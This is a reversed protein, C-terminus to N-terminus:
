GQLSNIIDTVYWIEEEQGIFSSLVEFTWMVGMGVFIKLYQLFRERMNQKSHGTVNETKIEKRYLTWIILVCGSLNLAMLISVPVLFWLAESSKNAFGICGEEGGFGARAWSCRYTIM